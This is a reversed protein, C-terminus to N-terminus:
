NSNVKNPCTRATHELSGCVSCTRPARIRREKVGGTFQATLETNAAVSRDLGEQVTLVGGTAIYSRRVARKKKQRENAARLKKNEDALLVASHMAMQCGKVLQRVARDTPSTSGATRRRVFDGIAKAQSELEQINHPTEPVWSAQEDVSLIPPTPTQLQTNLKSLVREPDYPVLGTAAFGSRITRLTLAETRATFYAPLFDSKDIHNVGARMLDEIQRGYSRKLVAFCSVDLPQLLHSSHPPM